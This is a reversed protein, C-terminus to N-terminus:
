KRKTQTNTKLQRERQSDRERQRKKEKKEIKRVKQGERAWLWLASIIIFASLKTYAAATSFLSCQASHYQDGSCYLLHPPWQATDHYYATSGNLEIVM